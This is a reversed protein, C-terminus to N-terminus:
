EGLRGDELHVVWGGGGGGGGGGGSTAVKSVRLLRRYPSQLSIFLKCLYSYDFCIHM